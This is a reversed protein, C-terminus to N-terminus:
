PYGVDRDFLDRDARQGESGHVRDRDEDDGEEGLEREPQWAQKAVSSLSVDHSYQDGIDKEGRVERLVRGIRKAVRRANGLGGAGGDVDQVHVLRHGLVGAHRDLHEDQVFFGALGGLLTAMVHHFLNQGFPLGPEPFVEIAIIGLDAIQNRRHFDGVAVRGLDDQAARFLHAAVQDNQARM